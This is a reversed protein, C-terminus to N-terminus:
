ASAGNVTLVGAALTYYATETVTAGFGYGPALQAPTQLMM